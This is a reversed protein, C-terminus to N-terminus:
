LLDRTRWRPFPQSTYSVRTVFVTELLSLSYVTVGFFLAVLREYTSRCPAALSCHPLSSTAASGERGGLYRNVWQKGLIAALSTFLPIALSAYLLSQVAVTSPPQGAWITANPNANPFSINAAHILAQMYAATVENLDPEM